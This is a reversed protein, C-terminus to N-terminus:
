NNLVQVLQLCDSEVELQKFGTTWAIELGDAIGWLEAQLFDYMGVNRCFGLVWEGRDDQLLGGASVLRMGTDVGDTNLKVWGPQPVM